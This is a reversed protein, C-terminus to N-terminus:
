VKEGELTATEQYLCKLITRVGDDVFDGEVVESCYNIKQSTRFSTTNRMVTKRAM